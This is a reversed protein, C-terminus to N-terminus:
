GAVEEHQLWRRLKADLQEVKVPKALYDDMGATLCLAEDGEMANATMAIIPIHRGTLKERARIERTAQYGDMEPMQVDMLVVDFHREQLLGLAERGNGAIKVGFGLKQLMGAAVMQNVRNDEVLLVRRHEVQSDAEPWGHAQGLAKDTDLELVKCLTGHLMIRQVPKTVFAVNPVAQLHRHAEETGRQVLTSLLVQRPQQLKLDEAVTRSFNFCQRVEDDLRMNIMVLEYCYHERAVGRLVQLAQDYGDITELHVGWNDLEDRVMERLYPTANVLMVRRGRLGRHSVFREAQQSSALLKATFWFTSGKGPESNCGIGGDMAKVLGKCIALGLGAGGQGDMDMPNFPQFLSAVAEESMGCGDDVVEVHLLGEDRGKMEMHVRVLVEGEEQFKIANNVLNTLVQTIRQPDGRVRLPIGPDFLCCLELGKEHAIPGLVELADEVTRRLNFVSSDIVIKGAAIRSFDLIDNILALLTEGSHAAVQVYERQESSLQSDQLLSLMGLISSMPTRIEHNMNALFEHKVRSARAAEHMASELEVAKRQLDWSNEVRDWHSQSLQKAQFMLFAWFVMYLGGLAIVEASPLFVAVVCCPLILICLYVRVVSLYASYLVTTGAALASTFFWASFLGQMNGYELLGVVLFCSWLASNIWTQLFFRNRWKVPSVAYIAEFRYTFFVRYVAILLLAVGLVYTFQQQRQHFDTLGLSVVYLVLYIGAGSISRRSLERDIERMVKRDNQVKREPRFYLSIM